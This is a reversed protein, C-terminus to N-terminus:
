REDSEGEKTLELFLNELTDNESGKQARLEAMTGCAILKGKNIIGVRDCIREATELIHTSFLVTNGNNVHERMIEKFLHSSKPDLGVMPEDLIFLQPMHLLSSTLALKQQMGHSYSQILDTAAKTLGFMELYHDIKEKRLKPNVEFVDGILNLYELGTLRQYLDPNDPVFGIKQKAELPKKVVDINDVLIQGSDPILLGVIMKLTTTKGAGNPGLFGFIEGKKIQLNLNEVAFIDAGHYKKSVDKISLM